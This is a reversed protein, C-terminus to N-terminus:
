GEKKIREDTKNEGKITKRYQIFGRFNGCWGNFHEEVAKGNEYHGQVYSYYLPDSMAQACHEFPSM